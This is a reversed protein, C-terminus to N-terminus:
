DAMLFAVERNRNKKAISSHACSLATALRAHMAATQAANAEVRFEPRGSDMTLLVANILKGEAAREM